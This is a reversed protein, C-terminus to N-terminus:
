RAVWALPRPREWRVLALGVITTAIALVGATAFLVYTRTEANRGANAADVDSRDRLFADHKSATDLASLGGAGAAVATLGLGTWFWVPSLGREENVPPAPPPPPPALVRETTREPLVPTPAIELTKGPEIVVDVRETRSGQTMTVVHAGVTVFRTEAAIRAGDLTVDCTCRVALRGVKPGLKKRAGLLVTEKIGRRTSAREVLTMGLAADDAKIAAAIALELTVANPALEDARALEGASLAYDGRDYARAGRDYAQAADEKADARALSPAFFVLALLHRRV